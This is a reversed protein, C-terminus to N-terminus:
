ERVNGLLASLRRDDDVGVFPTYALFRTAERPPLSWLQREFELALEAIREFRERMAKREAATHLNGEGIFRWREGVIREADAIFLQAKKKDNERKWIIDFDEWLEKRFKTPVDLFNTMEGGERHRTRARDRRGQARGAMRVPPLGAADRLRPDHSQAAEC